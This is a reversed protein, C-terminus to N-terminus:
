VWIQLMPFNVDLPNFNSSLAGFTKNPFLNLIEKTEYPDFHISNKHWDQM